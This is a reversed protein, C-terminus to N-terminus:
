VVYHGSLTLRGSASVAAVTLTTQGGTADWEYLRVHSAGNFVVGSVSIGAVALTLGNSLGGVLTPYHRAGTSLSVFPLNGIAAQDGTTLTGLGTMILLIEFFVRNGIKTYSGTQASYTQGEADSFSGDQLTPTFTGEEYDDLYNAAGAGGVHIGGTTLNLDGSIIELDKGSALKFDVNSTANGADVQFRNGGGAWMEYRNTSHNYRLRGISASDADGFWVESFNVGVLALIAETNDEVILGLNVYPTWGFGSAGTKIHVPVSPTTTGFGVRDNASDVHLTDTDVTFDFAGIVQDAGWTNAGNLLPVNAGSTGIDEVAATGLGLNTRAGAATGAGTGGDAIPLDGTVDTTLDIAGLTIVQGLITLYDPTGALTVPDPPITWVPDAGVGRTELRYGSTSPSLTQWGAASRYAIQGQATGLWELIQSATVEEVDGSGATNRGLARTTNMTKINAYPLRGTVDTALDIAGLTIEQGAITLYDLGVALTVDTSTDPAVQAEWAANGAVWTLVDQDNPAAADVDALDDLSAILDAAITGATDDYTLDITGTDLLMAGVLDQIDEDTLSLHTLVDSIDLMEAPGDGPALRGLLTQTRLPTNRGRYVRGARNEVTM